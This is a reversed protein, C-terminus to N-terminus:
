SLTLGQSQSPPSIGVCLIYAFTIGTKMMKDDVVPTTADDKENVGSIIPTLITVKDNHTGVQCFGFDTVDNGDNQHVILNTFGFM